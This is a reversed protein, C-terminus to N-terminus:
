STREVRLRYLGGASYVIDTNPENEVIAVDGVRIVPNIMAYGTITLTTNHLLTDIRADIAKATKMLTKSFGRIQYVYDKVRHRTDNPETGSQMNFVVFDFEANDRAQTDYVSTSDALLNM